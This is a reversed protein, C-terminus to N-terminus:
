AANTGTAANIRKVGTPASDGPSIPVLSQATTGEKSASHTSSSDKQTTSDSQQAAQVEHDLSVFKVEPKSRVKDLQADSLKTAYGNLAKKYVLDPTFGEDASHKKAVEAASSVNDNLVVIYHGKISGIDEKQLPAKGGSRENSSDGSTTQALVEESTALLM